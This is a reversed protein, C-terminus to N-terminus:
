FVREVRRIEPISNILFREIGARLTMIALPCDACAGTLRLEVVRTEREYRVFEAGGGDEELYPLIQRLAEKIRQEIPTPIFMFM